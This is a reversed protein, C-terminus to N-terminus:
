SQDGLGRVVSPKNPQTESCFIIEETDGILRFYGNSVNHELRKKFNGIRILVGSQVEGKVIIKQKCAYRLGGARDYEPSVPVLNFSELEERAEELEEELEELDEGSVTPGLRHRRRRVKKALEEVEGSIEFYKEYRGYDVAAALVSLQSTDTDVTVVYVSGGSILRSGLIVSNDETEIDGGSYVTCFYAEKRIMSKGGCKITGSEVYLIDVNGASEIRSKQGTLGGRIVVNTKGDIVASEVNGGILLDGGAKVKFDPRVSGTVELAGRCNINGTQYDVDGSVSLKDTIKIVGNNVASVVGTIAAFVEGTEKNFLVDPGPNFNLEKGPSQPVEHGFINVGPIGETANVKTAVLQGREVSVFMNRERYDIAGSSDERGAVSGIVLNLKIRADEGNVPLRGRAIIEDSIPRKELEVLNLLDRIRNERIGWSVNEEALMEKVENESPLRCDEFPPHLRLRVTWGDDSVGIIPDIDVTVRDIEKGEVIIIHPYGPKTSFVSKRDASFQVWEGAVLEYRKTKGDGSGDGPEEELAALVNGASKWESVVIDRRTEDEEITILGTKFLTKLKM